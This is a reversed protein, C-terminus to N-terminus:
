GYIRYEFEVEMEAQLTIPPFKLLSFLLWNETDKEANCSMFLGLENVTVYPVTLDVNHWGLDHIDDNDISTDPMKLPLKYRLFITDFDKAQNIIPQIVDEEPWPYRDDGTYYQEPIDDKQKDDTTFYDVEDVYWSNRLDSIDTAQTNVSLPHSIGNDTTDYGVKYYMISYDGSNGQRHSEESESNPDIGTFWAKLEPNDIAAGLQTMKGNELGMAKALTMLRGGEVICNHQKFLIEGTAKNRAIVEGRFKLSDHM